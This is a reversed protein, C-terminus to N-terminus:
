FHLTTMRLESHPQLHSLSSKPMWQNNALEYINTTMGPDNYKDRKDFFWLSGKINMLIGGTMIKPLDDIGHDAIWVKNEHDFVSVADQHSGLYHGGAGVAVPIKEPGYHYNAIAVSRRTSPLDDHTELTNDSLLFSFTKGIEASTGGLLLVQSCLFKPNSM